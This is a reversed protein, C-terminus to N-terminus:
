ISSFYQKLNLITDAVKKGYPTLSYTNLKGGRGISIDIYDIYFLKREASKKFHKIVTSPDLGTSRAIDKSTVESFRKSLSLITTLYNAIADDVRSLKTLKLPDSIPPSTRITRFNKLIKKEILIANTILQNKKFLNLLFDLDSHLSTHCNACIFGGDEAIIKKIAESSPFQKLIYPTKKNNSSPNKHHFIFSPLYDEIDTEGCIQCSMGYISDIIYKKRMFQIINNRIGEKQRATKNMTGRFNNVATRIFLHISEASFKSMFNTNILHKFVKFTSAQELLHHNRCLLTVNEKEMRMIINQIINPNGSDSTFLSYLNLNTFSITKKMPSTHHFELARLRSLGTNIKFKKNKKCEPCRGDSYKGNYIKKLIYIKLKNRVTKKYIIPDLGSTQSHPPFLSPKKNSLKDFIRLVVMYLGNLAKNLNIGKKHLYECFPKISIKAGIKLHNGSTFVLLKVIEVLDLLIKDFQVQSKLMVGKLIEIESAPFEKSLNNSRLDAKFQGVLKSSDTQLHDFFLLAIKELLDNFKSPYNFKGKKKPYFKIFHRAYIEAM